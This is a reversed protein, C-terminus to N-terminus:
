QQKTSEGPPGIEALGHDLVTGRGAVSARFRIEHQGGAWIWFRLTEGPFVPLAFRVGLRRLRSADYGCCGRLVAHAAVAFSCLGHLIPREFGGAKAVEPDVHLPNYDGSLRYILAAQPVTPLDLEIAPSGLNPPIPALTMPREDTEGSRQSFGGDGRLVEVRRGRAVVEGSGADVIDRELEMFAGRGPGRDHLGVVRNRGIMTGSPALPRLLRLEQEGQLMRVWDIGSKENRYWTGPSGMVAAMTPVAQLGKEYAFRLQGADLPDFGFGAGLAYLMTDRETYAYGIEGFDWNKVARYDLM